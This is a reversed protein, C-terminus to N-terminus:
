RRRPPAARGAAAQGEVEVEIMLDLDGAAGVAAVVRGLDLARLMALHHAAGAGDVVAEVEGCRAGLHRM